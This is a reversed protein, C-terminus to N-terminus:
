FRPRDRARLAALIEVMHEITELRGTLSYFYDAAVPSAAALADALPGALDPPAAIAADYDDLNESRVAEAAMAVPHFSLLATGEPSAM